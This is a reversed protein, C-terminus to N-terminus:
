LNRRRLILFHFFTEWFLNLVLFLRLYKYIKLLRPLLFGFCSLFFCRFLLLNWGLRLSSSHFFLSLIINNWIIVAHTRRSKILWRSNRRSSTFISIWSKWARIVFIILRMSPTPCVFFFLHTFIRIILIM